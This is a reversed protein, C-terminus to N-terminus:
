LASSLMGSMAIYIKATVMADALARHAEGADIGLHAAVAGLSRSPLGPYLRRAMTLTDLTPPRFERGARACYANLFGMDFPVNHCVVTDEGIFSIVDPLLEEFYPFGLTMQKGIKHVRYAGYPIEGHPRCLSSLHLGIEGDRVRVLAFEVVEGELPSLGTTEFDLVVVGM